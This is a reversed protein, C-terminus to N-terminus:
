SRGLFHMACYPKGETSYSEVEASCEVCRTAVDQTSPVWAVKQEAITHLLPALGELGSRRYRKSWDKGLGDEEPAPCITVDFGREYLANRLSQSKERGGTDGDLALTVHTVGAPVWNVELATGIIAVTNTIGAELLALADFGGECFVVDCASSLCQFHFWGNSYTKYWRLYLGAERGLVDGQTENGREYAVRAQNRLEKEKAELLAKHEDEDVGPVWLRLSRGVYHVGSPSSVPFIIHDVWRAIHAYKGTLPVNPVYGIGFARATEVQIGRQALYATAREDYLRAEMSDQLSQLLKLEEKQWFRIPTMKQPKSRAIHRPDKV